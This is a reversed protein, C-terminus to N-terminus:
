SAAENREQPLDCVIRTGHGPDSTVEFRGGLTRARKEMNKLGHGHRHVTGANFGVGDDDVMLPVVGDYLQLTLITTHAAAHRLSNSMAERAIPLLQAAQEPTL